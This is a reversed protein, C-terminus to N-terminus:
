KMRIIEEAESHCSSLHLSHFEQMYTLPSILAELHNKLSHGGYCSQLINLCASVSILVSIPMLGKSLCMMGTFRPGIPRDAMFRQLDSVGCVPLLSQIRYSVIIESHHARTNGSLGTEGAPAMNSGHHNRTEDGKDGLLVPQRAPGSPMGPDESLTVKDGKIQVGGISGSSIQSIVETDRM